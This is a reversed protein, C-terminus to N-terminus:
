CLIECLDKDIIYCRENHLHIHESSEVMLVHYRHNIITDFFREAEEDDIFSRLNLLIFLKKKDYEYVLEFYNILKEGLSEYEEEFRMGASKVISELAIKQFSFDGALGLTQKFLFAELEAIIERIREFDNDLAQSVLMTTAKTLLPKKNIEFPFFCTLLEASKATPVVIDADSIVTKGELGELQMTLDSLLGTLLRQNEIILTNVKDTETDFVVNIDPYVFKM